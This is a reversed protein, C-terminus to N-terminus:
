HSTQLKTRVEKVKRQFSPTGASRFDNVIKEYRPDAVSTSALKLLNPTPKHPDLHIRFQHGATVAWYRPDTFTISRSGHENQAVQEIRLTYHVTADGRPPKNEIQWIGDQVVKDFFFSVTYGHSPPSIITYTKGNAGTVRYQVLSNGDIDRFRYEEDHLPGRDYSVLMRLDIVSRSTAVKRAQHYRTSETGAFIRWGIVVALIASIFILPATLSRRM